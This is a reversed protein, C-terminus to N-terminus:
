IRLDNAIDSETLPFANGAAAVPRRRLAEILWEIDNCPHFVLVSIVVL